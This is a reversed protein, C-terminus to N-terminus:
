TGPAGFKPCMKESIRFLVNCNKCPLKERDALLLIVLGPVKFVPGVLFVFAALLAGVLFLSLGVFHQNDM